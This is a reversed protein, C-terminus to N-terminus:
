GPARGTRWGAAHQRDSDSRSRCQPSRRGDDPHDDSHHGRPAVRTRAHRALRVGVDALLLAPDLARYHDHAERRSPPADERGKRLQRYLSAVTSRGVEPSREDALVDRRVPRIPIVGMAWSLRPPKEFECGSHYLQDLNRADAFHCRGLDLDILMLHSTDVHRLGTLKPKALGRPMPLSRPLQLRKEDYDVSSKASLTADNLLLRANRLQLAMQGGFTVAQCDVEAADLELKVSKTLTAKHLLLSGGCWATGSLSGEIEAGTLIWNQAVWLKQFSAEGKCKIRTFDASKAQPDVTHSPFTAGNWSFAAGDFICADEFQAGEFSVEGGRFRTGSFDAVGGFRARKFSTAGMFEFRSFDAGADFVAEEFQAAELSLRSASRVAAFLDATFKVGSFDHIFGMTIATMAFNRESDTAHELCHLRAPIVAGECFPHTCGRPGPPNITVSVIKGEGTRRQLLKM